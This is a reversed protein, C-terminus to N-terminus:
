KGVELIVAAWICVFAALLGGAILGYPVPDTENALLDLIRDVFHKM